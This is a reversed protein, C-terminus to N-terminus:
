NRLERSVGFFMAPEKEKKNKIVYDLEKALSLNMSRLSSYDTRAESMKGMKVFLVGRYMYAEAMEPKLRIAENYHTLATSYNEKGQKRLVYALNNHAEALNEDIDLAQEFFSQAESHKSRMMLEVGNNYLDLSKNKEQDSSNSVEKKSSGGANINISLIQFFLTIGILFFKM